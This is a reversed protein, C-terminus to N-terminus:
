IVTEEARNKSRLSIRALCYKMTLLIPLKLMNVKM